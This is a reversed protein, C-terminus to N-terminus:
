RWRGITTCGAQLGAPKAALPALGGRSWPAFCCRSSVTVALLPHRGRHCGSDPSVSIGAVGVATQCHRLPPGGAHEQGPRPDIGGAPGHVVVGRAGRAMCAGADLGETSPGSGAGGHRHRGVDDCGSAVCRRGVGRLARGLIGDQGADVAADLAAIVAVVDAVGVFGNGGVPHLRSGAAVRRYILGSSEGYRADGLIVTPNVAFASLGEAVGRWVEMEGAHKSVGYPSAGAGEAWDSSEHVPLPSGTEADVAARGLAAVSSIHVLRQIGMALAANVVNATGEQNVAKLQAEDGSRFSVRGAAHFVRDCGEMAAELAWVDELDAERWELGAWAAEFGAGLREQLLRKVRDVDSGARRLAVTPWGRELRWALREMGVLGTAGTVLERSPGHGPTPETM